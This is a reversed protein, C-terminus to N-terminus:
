YGTVTRVEKRHMDDAYTCKTYTGMFIRCHQCTKCKHAAQSETTMPCQIEEVYYANGKEGIHRVRQVQIKETM